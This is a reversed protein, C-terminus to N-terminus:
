QDAATVRPLLASSRSGPTNLWRLGRATASESLREASRLRRRLAPGYWDAIDISVNKTFRAPLFRLAASRRTSSCAL